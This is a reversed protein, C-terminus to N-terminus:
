AWICRRPLQCWPAVKLLWQLIDWPEAWLAPSFSTHRKKRCRWLLSDVKCTLTMYKLDLILFLFGETEAHVQFHANHIDM